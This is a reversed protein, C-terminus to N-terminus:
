TKLKKATEITQTILKQMREMLKQDKFSGDENFADQGNGIYIVPGPLMLTGLQQFIQRVHPQGRATGYPGNSVGFLVAFKGELSNGQRSAWDIANKLAGSISYNYEPSAIILIDAAAIADKLKKASEPFTGARLDGEIDGDYMPINLEKLDLETVNGGADQAIKKAVQLAKRNLSAKRLSGSIALINLSM